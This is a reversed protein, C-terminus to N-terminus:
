RSAFVISIITCRSAMGASIESPNIDLVREKMVEAKPMGITSHLAPLQRNLNGPSVCDGDILTLRGVGARALMEVAYAGVGGIGVVAVRSCLISIIAEIPAPPRVSGVWSLYASM